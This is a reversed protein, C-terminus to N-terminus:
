HARLARLHNLDAWLESAVMRTKNSRTRVRDWGIRLRNVEPWTRDLGMRVWDLGTRV